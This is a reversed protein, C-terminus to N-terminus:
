VLQQSKPRVYGRDKVWIFAIVCAALTMSALAIGVAGYGFGTAYILLTSGLAPAIVNGVTNFLSGMSVMTGRYQPVQELGLYLFAPTAMSAFWVHLMDLAFAVWLNPIFFFTATLCCNAATSILALRKAGTRSIIQGSLLFGIFSLGIAVTYIGLTFERPLEFRTRYFAMAFIAVQGGAVTLLSAVLCAVASKNKFILKFSEKYPNEKRVANQEQTRSPLAYSSLIMAGLSMPFVLLTFCFRWGAFGVILGLTPIMVLTTAAGAALLYGIAKAKKEAPLANGILTAATLSIIISGVGELVFFGQLWILTPAFFSGISSIIVLLLGTQYLKKHRFKVLLFSTILTFVFVGAANLASLQTVAGLAAPGSNGFFTKAMDIAFSVLVIDSIGASIGAVILTLMFTKKQIAQEHADKEM